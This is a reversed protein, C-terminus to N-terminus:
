AIECRLGSSEVDLLSESVTTSDYGQEKMMDTLQHM